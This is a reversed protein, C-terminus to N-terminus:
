DIEGAHIGGQMLTVPLGAARAAETTLAGSQSVVLLKMPRGEPTTGFESCRVAEPYRAAFADCLAVVEDYRGTEVFGSREAVTTLPPQQALAPLAVALLSACVSTLLAPRLTRAVPRPRTRHMM